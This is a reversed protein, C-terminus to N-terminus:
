HSCHSLDYLTLTSMLPYSSIFCCPPLQDDSYNCNFLIKKLDFTELHLGFQQVKFKMVKIFGRRQWTM